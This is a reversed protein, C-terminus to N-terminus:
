KKRKLVEHAIAAAGVTFFGVASGVLAGLRKKNDSNWFEDEDKKPASPPNSQDQPKDQDQAGFSVPRAMPQQGFQVPPMNM